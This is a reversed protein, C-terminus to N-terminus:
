TRAGILLEAKLAESSRYDIGNLVTYVVACYVQNYHINGVYVCMCMCVYVCMCVCVYVYM